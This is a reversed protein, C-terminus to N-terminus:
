KGNLVDSIKFLEASSLSANLALAIMVMNEVERWEGRSTDWYMLVSKDGKINYNFVRPKKM